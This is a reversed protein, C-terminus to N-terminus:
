CFPYFGPCLGLVAQRVSDEDVQGLGRGRAIQEARRLVEVGNRRALDYDFARGGAGREEVMDPHDRRHLVEFAAQRADPSFPLVLINNLYELAAVDIPHRQQEM